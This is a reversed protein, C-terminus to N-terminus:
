VTPKEWQSVGTANNYWFVNGEEDDVLEWPGIITGIAPEDDDDEDQVSHAPSPPHQSNSAQSPGGELQLLGTYGDPRDYTSEGTKPKTYFTRGDADEAVEWDDGRGGGGGGGGGGGSRGVPREWVSEQTQTNYYFIKGDEGECEEWISDLSGLAERGDGGGGTESSADYDILEMSPQGLSTGMLSAAAQVEEVAEADQKKMDMMAKLVPDGGTAAQEAAALAAPKEWQSQGTRASYYFARGTGDDCLEWEEIDGLNSFVGPDVSAELM